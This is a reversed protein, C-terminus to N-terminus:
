PEGNGVELSPKILMGGPSVGSGVDTTEIMVSVIRGETEPTTDIGPPSVGMEVRERFVEAVSLELRLGLEM